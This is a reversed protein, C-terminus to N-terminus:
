LSKIIEMVENSIYSYDNTKRFTLPKGIKISIPAKFFKPFKSGVPFIDDTGEIKVPIVPVNSRSVLLGVGNQPKKFEKPKARTGEPFIGICEGSKILELSRKLANIDRKNRNVPIAGAKRIFWGLVPVEFLEKKAMFLIPRPSITNLVFPDLHSRHNAAIICGGKQPINELGEVNIRLLSKFIPRIKFFLRYGRKSYIDM